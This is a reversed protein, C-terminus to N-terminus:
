IEDTEINEQGDEGVEGDLEADEGTFAFFAGNVIALTGTQNEELKEFWDRGVLYEIEEGYDLAFTVYFEFKGVPTGVSVGTVFREYIRKSVVTATFCEAEPEDIQYVPNETELSDEVKKLFDKLAEWDGDVLLEQQLFVKANVQPSVVIYEDFYEVSKINYFAFSYDGASSQVYFGDNKIKINCKPERKHKYYIFIIAFMITGMAVVFGDLIAIGDLKENLTGDLFVVPIILMILLFVVVGWFLINFEKKFKSQFNAKIEGTYKGQFSWM